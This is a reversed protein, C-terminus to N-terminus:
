IRFETNVGSCWLQAKNIAAYIHNCFFYKAEKLFAVTKLLRYFNGQDLADTFFSAANIVFTAAQESFRSCVHLILVRSATHHWSNAYRGQVSRSCQAPLLIPTPTPCRSDSFPSGIRAEECVLGAHMPWCSPVM